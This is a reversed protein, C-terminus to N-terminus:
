GGVMSSCTAVVVVMHKCTEVEVMKMVEEETHICIEVVVMVMGVEETHTCTEVVVMVMGVVEMCRYIM